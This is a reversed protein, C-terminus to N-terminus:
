HTDAKVPEHKNENTELLKAKVLNATEILKTKHVPAVLLLRTMNYISEQDCCKSACLIKCTPTSCHPLMYFLILHCLPKLKNSLELLLKFGSFNFHFFSSIISTDSLYCYKYCISGM